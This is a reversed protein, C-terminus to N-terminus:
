QFGDKKVDGAFQLATAGLGTIASGIHAGPIFSLGVGVLDGAAAAIQM